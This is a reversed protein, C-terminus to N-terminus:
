YEQLVIVVQYYIHDDFQLFDYKLTNTENM